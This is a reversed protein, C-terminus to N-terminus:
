FEMKDTREEGLLSRLLAEVHELRERESRMELMEQHWAPDTRIWQAVQFSAPEFDDLPPLPGAPEPLREAVRQFLALTERARASIARIPEDLDPYDDVLGEFYLADSEIGDDLRFRDLGRALLLSRGDPIPHFQLIEAVCGVQGPAMEYPGGRDPDHFLLGFRRSGELCHAVMQRYRPEFIHLPLRAGPVLVLPLPFLPLRRV